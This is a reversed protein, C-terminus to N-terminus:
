RELGERLGKRVFGLDVVMIHLAAVGVGEEAALLLVSVASELSFAKEAAKASEDIRREAGRGAAASM